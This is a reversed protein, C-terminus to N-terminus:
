TYDSSLWCPPTTRPAAISAAGRHVARAVMPFGRALSVESPASIRSPQPRPAVDWSPMCAEPSRRHFPNRSVRKLFPQVWKSGPRSKGTENSAPCGSGSRVDGFTPERITFYPLHSSKIANALGCAIKWATWSPAGLQSNPKLAQHTCVASPSKLLRVSSTSAAASAFM